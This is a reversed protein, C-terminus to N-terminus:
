WHGAHAGGLLFGVAARGPAKQKVISNAQSHMDIMVRLM